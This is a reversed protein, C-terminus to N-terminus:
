SVRGEVQGCCCVVNSQGLGGKWWRGTRWRCACDPQGNGEAKLGVGCGTAVLQLQPGLDDEAPCPMVSDESHIGVAWVAGALHEGVLSNPTLQLATNAASDCTAVVLQRGSSPMITGASVSAPLSRAGASLSTSAWMTWSPLHPQPLTCEVGGPKESGGPGDKIVLTSTCRKSGM